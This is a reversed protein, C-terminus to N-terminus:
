MWEECVGMKPYKFGRGESFSKLKAKCKNEKMFWIAMETLLSDAHNRIKCSDCRNGVLMNYAIKDIQKSSM